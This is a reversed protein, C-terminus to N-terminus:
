SGRLVNTTFGVEQRCQAERCANIGKMQKLVLVTTALHDPSLEYELPLAGSNHGQRVQCYEIVSTAFFSRSSDSRGEKSEM